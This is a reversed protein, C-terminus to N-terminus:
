QVQLLHLSEEWDEHVDSQGTVVTSQDPKSFVVRQKLGFKSQDALIYSKECRSVAKKKVLGEQLDPTTFGSENVGNTGFFGISFNYKDLYECAEEGVLTQTLAKYQGGPLSVHFGRESLIKAHSFANTIYLADKEEIKEILAETTTGGDIYVMDGPQILRAAFEAIKQKEEYNLHRRVDMESERDQRNIERKRIAGGRVRLLKGQAELDLLDRRITSESAELLEMLQQTSVSRSTELLQQIAQHRDETLM